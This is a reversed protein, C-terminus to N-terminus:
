GLRVQAIQNAATTRTDWSAGPVLINDVGAVNSFAGTSPILYVPDRPAVAVSPLVWVAGKTIVRVSDYQKFGDAEANLSRERVTIGVFKGVFDGNFKRVGKDQTGQCVAIGFGVGASDEITRSLLTKPIMDVLMGPVARRINESYNTQVAM